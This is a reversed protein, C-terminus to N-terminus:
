PKTGVRTKELIETLENLPFRIPSTPSRGYRIGSARICQAMESKSNDLWSVSMGLYKAVEQKNLMRNNM